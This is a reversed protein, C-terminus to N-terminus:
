KKSKKGTLFEMLNFNRGVRATTHNERFVQNVSKKSKLFNCDICGKCKRGDPFVKYGSCLSGGKNNSTKKSM